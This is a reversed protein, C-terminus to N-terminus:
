LGIISAPPNPFIFLSCTFFVFCISSYFMCNKKEFHLSIQDKYIEFNKDISKNKEYICSEGNNLNTIIAFEIKKEKKKIIEKLLQPKM